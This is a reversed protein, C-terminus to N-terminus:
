VFSLNFVTFINCVCDYPWNRPKEASVLPPGNVMHNQLLVM